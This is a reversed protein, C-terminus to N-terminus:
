AQVPAQVHLLGAEHFASHDDRRGDARQHTSENWRRGEETENATVLRAGQLRALETPHGDRNKETFTEIPAGIAYSGMIASIMSMLTTKGNRGEGYNFFMAHERTEGTLCYGYKRIIFRACSQIPPSGKSFPTSCRRRANRILRSQTIKTMYDDPRSPRMFGTRLDVVGGPTNLLWPDTDWQDADAAIRRDEQALASWLLDHTASAIRKADTKKATKAVARCLDRALTFVRRKEDIKWVSKRCIVWRGWAEVFRLKDAFKTAFLLALEEESFKPATDEAEEHLEIGELTASGEEPEDHPEDRWDPDAESAMFFLTGATLQTPPSRDYLKWKANLKKLDHKISKASWSAFLAKGEDSGDTSAYIAMGVKNWAEWDVDDNPIVALAKSIEEPEPPPKNSPVVVAPRAESALKEALWTPLDAIPTGWNLWEYALGDPRISPPAIVMGGDGKVDVGPALKSATSGIYGGPHRYYRHISGSPSRAILTKPFEGSKGALAELSALGDVGHGEITDAEIVVIGNIAGTPVGVCKPWKKFDRAIEAPDKTMGWARGGSHEASKHSSKQGKALRAPFVHWDFKTAYLLAADLAALPFKSKTPSKTLKSYDNQSSRRSTRADRIDPKEMKARM